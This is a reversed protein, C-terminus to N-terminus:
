GDEPHRAVIVTNPQVESGVRVLITDGTHMLPEMSDGNVGLGIYRGSPMDVPLEIWSDCPEDWLDRGVGAAVGLEIRPALRENGVGTGPQARNMADIVSSHRNTVRITPHGARRGMPLREGQAASRIRRSLKQLAERHSGDTDGAELRRREEEAQWQLRREDFAAGSHVDVDLHQAALRVLEDTVADDGQSGSPQSDGRSPSQRGDDISGRSRNIM